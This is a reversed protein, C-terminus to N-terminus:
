LRYYIYTFLRFEFHSSKKLLFIFKMSIEEDKEFNEFNFFCYIMGFFVCVNKHDKITEFTQPMKIDM